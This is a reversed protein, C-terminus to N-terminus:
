FRCSVCNTKAVQESKPLGKKCLCKEDNSCQETSSARTNWYVRRFTVSYSCGQPYFSSTTSHISKSGYGLLEDAAAKCETESTLTVDGNAACHAGTTHETFTNVKM